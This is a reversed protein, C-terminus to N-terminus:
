LDIKFPDYFVPPLKMKEHMYDRDIANALRLLSNEDWHRGLLHLGIPVEGTGPRTTDSTKTTPIAYGVPISYGPLGLFNGLYIYKLLQVVLPTNNEGDTMADVTLPPPLGGITPNAICTLNEKEMLETIYHFAWSRIHDASMVELASFSSGLGITIKTNPEMSNPLNYRITDFKMAFETSIKAAHALAMIGLHPIRIPVIVAGKRKLSDIAAYCASRVELDSDDFWEDFTGIRVDSLNEINFFDQLQPVPPGKQNGDFIEQYFHNPQNQSIISYIIAADEATAAMPGAKIMTTDLGIDFPIRSFTAGLGHIGSM